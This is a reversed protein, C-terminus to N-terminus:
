ILSYRKFYLSGEIIKQYFKSDPKIKYFHLLEYAQHAKKYNGCYFSIHVLNTFYILNPEINERKM